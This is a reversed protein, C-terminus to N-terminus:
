NWPSNALSPTMSNDDFWRFAFINEIYIYVIYLYYKCIHNYIYIYRCKMCVFFCEAIFQTRSWKSQLEWAKWFQIWLAGGSRARYVFWKWWFDVKLILGLSLWRDSGFVLNQMTQHNTWHSPQQPLIYLDIFACADARDEQHNQMNSKQLWQWLSSSVFGPWRTAMSGEFVVIQLFKFSIWHQFTSDLDKWSQLEVCAGDQQRPWIVWGNERYGAHTNARPFDIQTRKERSVLRGNGGFM